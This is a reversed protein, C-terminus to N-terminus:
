IIFAKNYISGAPKTVNEGILRCLDDYTYDKITERSTGSNEVIRTRNGGQSLSFAYSEAIGNSGASTIKILRNLNDYDYDTEIGNPLTISKRNGNEDYAM